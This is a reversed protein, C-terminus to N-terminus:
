ATARSLDDNGPHPLTVRSDEGDNCAAFDLLQAFADRSEIDREAALMHVTEIVRAIWGDLLSPYLGRSPALILGLKNPRKEGFSWLITM